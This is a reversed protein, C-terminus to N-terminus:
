RKGGLYRMAQNIKRKAQKLAVAKTRGEGIPGVASKTEAVILKTPKGIAHFKRRFTIRFGKYKVSKLKKM